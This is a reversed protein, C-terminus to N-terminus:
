GDTRVEVGDQAWRTHFSGEADLRRYTHAGFYDRLGQILNAPGRERRYGDYYSLSSSFAPIAVGHETAMMVVRRWADQANAVAETFYPVMLLNDLDPHEAYADRIRNLFQARIICGGRWITAMAGLDLNWGNAISAARMQAFGQAYAVVKSAYLAERIDDVLDPRHEGRGPAPGALTAAAAGREDRLASLTRAFVAETIATLPVGLELADIATWRGTGKQEAQDVIVDVLPGGTREDTKVLVKGTIEILFSELDGTNWESFISGIAPADLGAVHTLLDYAEAILQIDAYEIGNHVMKVYHGAGDPGVHTCCPTGDVQAAISALVEEVEAYAAPHGGPMISPGLLAGEEGGSVGIGMFRLGHRACDETRRKTDAFHSNGADIIIDGPDLLPVLEGIVGDVPAGAKVMVIIRRPKELVAVFDELTEAGTFTGEQGHAEIFETTRATTRNHVAVPVGHRAINRALNAGMVALGTVGIRSQGTM